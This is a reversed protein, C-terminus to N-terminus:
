INTLKFIIDFDLDMAIDLQPDLKKISLKNFFLLLTIAPLFVSDVRRLTSTCSAGLSLHKKIANIVSAVIIVLCFAM